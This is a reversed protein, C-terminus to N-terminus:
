VTVERPRRVELTPMGPVPMYKWCPEPPVGYRRRERARAVAGATAGAGSGCYMVPVAASAIAVDSVVRRGPQNAGFPSFASCRARAVFSTAASSTIAPVPPAYATADLLRSAM